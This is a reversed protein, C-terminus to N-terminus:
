EGDKLRDHKNAIAVARARADEYTRADNVGMEGHEKITRTLAEVCARGREEATLQTRWRQKRGDAEREAKLRDQAAAVGANMEAQVKQFSPLSEITQRVEASTTWVGGRDWRRRKARLNPIYATM